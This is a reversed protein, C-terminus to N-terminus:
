CADVEQDWYLSTNVSLSRQQRNQVVPRVGIWDISDASRLLAYELGRLELIAEVFEGAAANCDATEEQAIVRRPLGRERPNRVQATAPGTKVTETGAVAVAPVGSRMVLGCGSVEDALWVPGLESHAEPEGSDLQLAVTRSSTVWCSGAPNVLTYSSREAPGRDQVLLFNGQALPTVFTSRNNSLRNTETHGGVRSAGREVDHLIFLRDAIPLAALFRTNSAAALKEPPV